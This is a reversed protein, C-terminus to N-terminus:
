ERGSATATRGLLGSPAEAGLQGALREAAAFGHNAALVRGSADFVVTAPATLVGLASALDPRESADLSVLRVAPGLTELALKQESCGSCGPASVYVIAPRGDLQLNLRGWAGREAQLRALNRGAFLRGAVVLAGLALALGALIL